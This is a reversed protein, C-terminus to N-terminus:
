RYFVKESKPKNAAVMAAGVISAENLFSAPKFRTNIKIFPFTKETNRSLQGGLIFLDPHFIKEYTELM